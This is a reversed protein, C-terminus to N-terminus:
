HGMKFSLPEMQGVNVCPEAGLYNVPNDEKINPDRAQDGDGDPNIYPFPKPAEEVNKGTTM